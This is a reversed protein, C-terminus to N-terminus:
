TNENQCTRFDVGLHSPPAECAATVRNSETVRPSEFIHRVREGSVKWLILRLADDDCAEVLSPSTALAAFNAALSEM